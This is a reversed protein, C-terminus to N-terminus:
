QTVLLESKAVAGIMDRSGNGKDRISAAIEDAAWRDRFGLPCVTLFGCQGLPLCRPFMNVPDLVDRKLSGVM